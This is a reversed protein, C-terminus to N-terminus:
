MWLEECSSWSIALSLRRLIFFPSSNIFSLLRLYENESSIRFWSVQELFSTRRRRSDFIARLSSQIKGDTYVEVVVQTDSHLWCLQESFFPCIVKKLPADECERLLKLRTNGDIIRISSSIFWKLLKSLQSYSVWGPEQLGQYRLKRRVLFSSETLARHVNSRSSRGRRDRSLEVCCSDVFVEESIWM